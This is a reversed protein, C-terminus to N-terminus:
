PRVGMVTQPYAGRATVTVDYLGSVERITRMVRDAKDTAWADGGDAINFSFSAQDIDGRELAVRLDQAYTYNGVKADVRLGKADSALSLTRNKTRALVYRTDHDVVFHVDPDTALVRDFAGPAIQERFGGLDHSLQNYVAAYGQISFSGDTGKARSGLARLEVGGDTIHFSRNRVQKRGSAPLRALAVERDIPKWGAKILRADYLSARRREAEAECIEM